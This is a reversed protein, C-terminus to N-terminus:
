RCYVEREISVQCDFCRIASPYAFRRAQPIAHGCDLCETAGAKKLDARAAEVKADREQEVREEALEFHLNSLM